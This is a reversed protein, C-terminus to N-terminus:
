LHDNVVVSWICISLYMEALAVQAWDAQMKTKVSINNVEYSMIETTNFKAKILSMLCNVIYPGLAISIFSNLCRAFASLLTILWLSWNFWNQFWTEGEEREGQRKGAEGKM